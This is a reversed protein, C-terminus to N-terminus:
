SAANTAPKYHEPYRERIRDSSSSWAYCTDLLNTLNSGPKEDRANRVPWLTQMTATAMQGLMEAIHTCGHAGGFRERAKRNFGPGIRLGELRAFNPTIDGCMSYPAIETFAEAKHILMDIDVTLRLWMKHVMGDERRDEMHGYPGPKYDHIVGEMDWLGDEREYGKIEIGRTHRHMRNVPESLAM